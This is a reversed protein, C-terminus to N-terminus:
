ADKLLRKLEKIIDPICPTESAMCYCSGGEKLYHKKWIVDLENIRRQIQKRQTKGFAKKVRKVVDPYLYIFDEAGDESFAIAGDSYFMMTIVKDHKQLKTKLEIEKEKYQSM